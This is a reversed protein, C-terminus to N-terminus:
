ELRVITFANEMARKEQTEFRSPRGRCQCSEGPKLEKPHKNGPMPVLMLMQAHDEPIDTLGCYPENKGFLCIKFKM